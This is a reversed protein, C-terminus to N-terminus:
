QGFDALANILERLTSPLGELGADLAASRLAAVNKSRLTEGHSALEQNYEPWM